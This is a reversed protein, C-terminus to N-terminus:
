QKSPWTVSNVATLALYCDSELYHVAQETQQCWLLAERIAMLEAAYPEQAICLKKSFVDVVDGRDNQVM